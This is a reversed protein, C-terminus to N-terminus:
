LCVCGCDGGRRMKKIKKYAGYACALFVDAGVAYTKDWGAHHGVHTDHGVCVCVYMFAIPRRRGAHVLVLLLFGIWLFTM